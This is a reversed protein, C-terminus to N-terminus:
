LRLINVQMVKGFAIVPPPIRDKFYLLSWLISGDGGVVVLLDIDYEDEQQYAILDDMSLNKPLHLKYIPLMKGEVYVRGRFDKIIRFINEM